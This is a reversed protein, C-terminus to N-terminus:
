DNKLRNEEAETLKLYNPKLNHPNAGNDDIYKNIIKNGNNFTLSYERILYKQKFQKILQQPTKISYM